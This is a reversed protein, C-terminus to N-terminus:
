KGDREKLPQEEGGSEKILWNKICEVCKSFLDIGYCDENNIQCCIYGGDAQMTFLFEAMREINFSQIKEFNTM